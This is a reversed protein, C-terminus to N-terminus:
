FRFNSRSHVKNFYKFAFTAGVGLGFVILYPLFKFNIKPKKKMLFSVMSLKKDSYPPYKASSFSEGIINFDKVLCSKRHTFTDFTHKGHYAGMGSLGVGGFPLNEVSVQVITDNVCVGGAKVNELMNNIIEKSQTFVYLALPSHNRNNIFNIADYANDVIVIPLIPGFIEEKMIPDTPKVDTLITPEIYLDKKDHRGGVAISGSNTMLDLLRVFHKESVIRCFDPSNKPDDTYWAKLLQKAKEVFKNQIQRTCLIYDPAICTQGANICKGWIIRKVSIDMNVTGDIYLPSKGGLELTVPTLYENAAARVIKGVSTSGTYFIYDFRQKLLQTTEEVGGLVVPFADRNLYKPVLEAILKATAPAIESPKIVVSNGAAIAGVVPLLTLQLPYNWAGMVLVVGYPDKHILVDDMINILPKDPREIKMWSEVSDLANIIDNKLYEIEFLVAEQKSKRLDTALALQLDSSNENLLKLLQRLHHKRLHLSKTQNSNFATRAKEVVDAYNAMIENTATGSISNNTSPTIPYEHTFKNLVIIHPELNSDSIVVETLSDDDSGRVSNASQVNLLQLEEEVATVQLLVPITTKTVGSM